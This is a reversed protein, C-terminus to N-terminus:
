GLKRNLNHNNENEKQKVYLTIGNFYARYETHESMYYGVTEGSIGADYSLNTIEYESDKLLENFIGLVEDHTLNEKVTTEVGLINTKKTVQVRTVCGMTEYLGIPERSANITVKADKNEVEKYYKEILECVEKKKFNIEM